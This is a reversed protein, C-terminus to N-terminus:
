RDWNAAIRSLTLNSDTLTESHEVSGGRAEIEGRVDAPDLTDVYRRPLRQRSGDLGVPVAFDLFVRGRTVRAMQWLNERGARDVSDLLRHAYLVPPRQQASVFQAAVVIMARLNYLTLREIRAASATDRALAQAHEVANDAYDFGFVPRGARALWVADSGLGCGADIVPDAPDLQRDVWRAFESPGSRAPQNGAFYRQWQGRKFSFGGFWGQARRSTSAPTDFAFAPDPIRWGDGYTAELLMEPRAPAPLEVGELWVRSLPLIDARTLPARVWREIAFHGGCFYGSFIDISRELGADESARVRCFGPRSRSVYWGNAVLWHQLELSETAVDAPNEFRSVYAIDVDNDHAIFSQSRVAGLLTGYALFGDVGFEALMALLQRLDELIAAGIHTSTSGFPRVLAGWKDVTLVHGDSDAVRARIDTADFVVERDDLTRDTVHERVLVRVRGRLFPRVVDPWPALRAGAAAAADQHAAVSFVREDDFLIDVGHESEPPLWIGSADARV